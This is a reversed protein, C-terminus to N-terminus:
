YQEENNFDDDTRQNSNTVYISTILKEQTQPKNEIQNVHSPPKQIFVPNPVISEIPIGPYFQAISSSKSHSPRPTQGFIQQANLDLNSSVLRRDFSTRPTMNSVSTFADIGQPFTNTLISFQDIPKHIHRRATDTSRTSSGSSSSYSSSSLFRRRIQDGKFLWCGIVIMICIFLLVGFAILLGGWWM